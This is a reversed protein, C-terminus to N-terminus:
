RRTIDICCVYVKDLQIQRTSNNVETDSPKFGIADIFRDFEHSAYQATNKIVCTLNGWLNTDQQQQQQQQRLGVSTNDEGIGNEPSPTSSVHIGFGDSM